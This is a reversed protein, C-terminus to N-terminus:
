PSFKEKWKIGKKRLKDILRRIEKKKKQTLEKDPSIEFRLIDGDQTEPPLYKEPFIIEEGNKDILVALKGEFRDVVLNLREKMGGRMKKWEIDSKNIKRNKPPSPNM